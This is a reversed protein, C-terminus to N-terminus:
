CFSPQPGCDATWGLLVQSQPSSRNKRVRSWQPKQYPLIRFRGFRNPSRYGTGRVTVIYRQDQATEGLTKRLMFITQSLNSEEVFSEPWLRNMLEDKLLVRDRNQVLVLLTEFAKPTLAVREEGRLLIRKAPELRFPGFEYM